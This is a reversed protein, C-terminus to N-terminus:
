NFFYFLSEGAPGTTLVEPKWQLPVSKIGPRPVLISCVVHCPGFIYKKLLLKVFNSVYDRAELLWFYKHIKLNLKLVLKEIVLIFDNPPDKGVFDWCWSFFVNVKALYMVESQRLKGTSFHPYYYRGWLTIHPNFPLYIFFFVSMNVTYMVKPISIFSLELWTVKLNQGEM